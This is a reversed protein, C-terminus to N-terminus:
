LVEVKVRDVPPNTRQGKVEVDKEVCVRYLDAQMFTNLADKLALVHHDAWEIKLRPGHFVDHVTIM